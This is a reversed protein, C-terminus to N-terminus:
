ESFEIIHIYIDRKREDHECGDRETVVYNIVLKAVV